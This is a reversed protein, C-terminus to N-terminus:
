IHDDGEQQLATKALTQQSLLRDDLSDKLVLFTFVSSSMAGFVSVTVSHHGDTFIAIMCVVILILSLVKPAFRLLLFPPRREMEAKLLSAPKNVRGSLNWLVRDSVDLQWRLYMWGAATCAIATLFPMAPAQIIGLAGSLFALLVIVWMIPRYKSQQIGLMMEPIARSFTNSRISELDTALTSKLKPFDYEKVDFSSILFIAPPKVGVNQFNKVCDQIIQMQGQSFDVGQMQMSFADNDIKSRIYYFEKQQEQIRKSLEGDCERFRAQSVIIYFDYSVFDVQKLYRNLEFGFSNLGPLDWLQVDPLSPYRYRTPVTSAEDNGTPAAGPDDSRVDRMANIFTSKGSGVDGLVAIKIKVGTLDEAKRKLELIVTVVDGKSYMSQLSRVEEAGFFKYLVSSNMKDRTIQCSGLECFEM